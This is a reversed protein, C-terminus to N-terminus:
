LHDHNQLVAKLEKGTTVIFNPNYNKLFERNRYGWTVAISNVGANKASLIDVETDGIMFVNEKKECTKKLITYIGEPDPKKHKIRDATIIISFKDVIGLYKLDRITGMEGKSTLIAKKAPINLIEQMGDFMKIRRPYIDLFTQRIERMLKIDEQGILKEIVKNLPLGIAMRLKIYDLPIGKKTFVMEFTIKIEEWTDVITGDLDFILLM